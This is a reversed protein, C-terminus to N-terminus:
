RTACFTITHRGSPLNLTRPEFSLQRERQLKVGMYYRRWTDDTDNLPLSFEEGKEFVFM